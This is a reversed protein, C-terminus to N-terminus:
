IAQEQIYQYVKKQTQAEDGPMYIGMIRTYSGNTPIIIHCLNGALDPQVEVKNITTAYHGKILLIM